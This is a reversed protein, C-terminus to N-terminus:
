ELFHVEELVEGTILFHRGVDIWRTLIEEKTYKFFAGRADVFDGWYTGSFPGLFAENQDKKAEQFREWNQKREKEEDPDSAWEFAFSPQIQRFGFM